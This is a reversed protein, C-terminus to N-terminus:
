QSDNHLWEKALEKIEKIREAENLTKIQLKKCLKM